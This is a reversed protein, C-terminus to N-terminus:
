LHLLHSLLHQFHCKKLNIFAKEIKEILEHKKKPVLEKELQSVLSIIEQANDSISM